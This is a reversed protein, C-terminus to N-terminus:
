VFNENSRGGEATRDHTDARLTRVACLAVHQAAALDCGLPYPTLRPAAPACGVLAGNPASLENILWGLQRADALAALQMRALASSASRLHGYPADASFRQPMLAELSAASTRAHWWSAPTSQPPARHLPVGQPVFPAEPPPETLELGQLRLLASAAAAMSPVDVCPAVCSDDGGSLLATVPVIACGTVGAATVALSLATADVFPLASVVTLRRSDPRSAATTSGADLAWGHPAAGGDALAASLEAIRAAIWDIAAGDPLPVTEHGRLPTGGVALTEGADRYGLDGAAVQLAPSVVASTRWRRGAGDSAIVGISVLATRRPSADRNRRNKRGRAANRPLSPPRNAAEHHHLEVHRGAIVVLPRPAADDKTKMGQADAIQSANRPSM